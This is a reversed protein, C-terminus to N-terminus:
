IHMMMSKSNFRKRLINYVLKFPFMLFGFVVQLYFSSNNGYVRRNAKIHNCIAGIEVYCLLNYVISRTTSFQLPIAQGFDLKAKEFNQMASKLCAVTKLEDFEILEIVKGAPINFREFDRSVPNIWKTKANLLQITPLFKAADSTSAWTIGSSCGLLLTCYHTLAVTERFSLESGDIIKDGYEPIKNGSSLVIATKDYQIIEEAVHLAFNMTIKSQGSQPAYEFLIVHNYENLRHKRAFEEAARVEDVTLRLVPTVPVSIKFPYAQLINSRISGDYFAQNTDMNQTIFLEDFEGSKKQESYFRKLKRFGVVDSRILGEVVLIEDVYPNNFIISKCFSAVAWVLYCGSFDAKIQRAVTTAYLCDGNSYLQVLLIKKRQQM